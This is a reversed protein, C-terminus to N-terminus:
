RKGALGIWGAGPFRDRPTRVAVARTKASLWVQDWSPSSFAAPDARHLSCQLAATAFAALQGILNEGVTPVLPRLRERALALVVAVRDVTRPYDEATLFWHRNIQAEAVLCVVAGIVAEVWDQASAPGTVDGAQLVLGLADCQLERSAAQPREYIFNEMSVQRAVDLVFAEAGSRLGARNTHGLLHHAYEHSLAWAEAHGAATQYFDIDRGDPGSTSLPHAGVVVKSQWVEIHAEIHDFVELLNSDPLSPDTLQAGIVARFRDLATVVAPLVITLQLSLSIYARGRSQRAAANIDGGLTRGVFVGGVLEHWVDPMADVIGTAVVDLVPCNSRDPSWRYSTEADIASRDHLFDFRRAAWWWFSRDSLPMGNNGLFFNRGRTLDWRSRPIATTSSQM